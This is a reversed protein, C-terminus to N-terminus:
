RKAARLGDSEAADPDVYCRDPATREYNLMGPLHFIKSSLKAKVPHSGPCTGDADPEIWAAKKAAGKKATAKRGPAKKAAAKKKPAPEFATPAPAEAEDAAADAWDPTPSEPQRDVDGAQDDADTGTGTSVTPAPAPTKPAPAANTDVREPPTSIPPWASSGGSGPASSRRGQIAKVAAAVGGALAGLTLGIRFSRRIM